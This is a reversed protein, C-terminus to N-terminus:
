IDHCTPFMLRKLTHFFNKEYGWKLKIVLVDGDVGDLQEACGDVNISLLPLDFNLWVLNKRKNRIWTKRVRIYFIRALRFRNEIDDM